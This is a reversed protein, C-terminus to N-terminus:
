MWRGVNNPQRRLGGSVTHFFVTWRQDFVNDRWLKTLEVLLSTIAHGEAEPTLFVHHLARVVIVRWRQWFQELEPAVQGAVLAGASAQRVYVHKSGSHGLLFVPNDFECVFNINRLPIHPVFLAEQLKISKVTFTTTAECNRQGHM